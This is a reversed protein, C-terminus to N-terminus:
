LSNYHAVIRTLNDDGKVAIKNRSIYSEMESKQAGFLELLGKKNSILKAPNGDIIIYHTKQVEEFRPPKPDAYAKAEEKDSFRVSYRVLLTAKGETLIEFLGNKIKDGSDYQLCAFIVGGFEARKIITKPNINYTENDKRFELDDSYANYRLPIDTYITEKNTVIKGTSFELNLYPTGQIESMKLNYGSFTGERMKTFRYEDMLGNLMNQANLSNTLIIFLFIVIVTCKM